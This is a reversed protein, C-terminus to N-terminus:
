VIELAIMYNTKQIIVPLAWMKCFFKFVIM